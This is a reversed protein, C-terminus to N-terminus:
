HLNCLFVPFFSLTCKTLDWALHRVGNLSHFAFPAALIFKGAYKVATPMGAVFAIVQASGFTGPVFLYALAYGYLVPKKTLRSWPALNLRRVSQSASM